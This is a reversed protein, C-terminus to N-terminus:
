FLLSFLIAEQFIYYVKEYHENAQFAQVREGDKFSFIISFTAL